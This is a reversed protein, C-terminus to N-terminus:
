LDSDSFDRISGTKRGASDGCFFSLTPDIQGHYHNVMIRWMEISPKRYKDDSTSVAVFM